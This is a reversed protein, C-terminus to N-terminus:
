ALQWWAYGFGDFRGLVKFEEMRAERPVQYLIYGDWANSRGMYFYGLDRATEEGGRNDRYFGYPVVRVTGSLDWYEEFEKIRNPPVYDPDPTLVQDHYQIYFHDQGMGYMRPDYSPDNGAMYMCPFIVLYKKGPPAAQWFYQGWSVSWYRYNPIFVARYITVQMVLDKLGSVDDRRWTFWESLNHGNTRYKWMDYPEVYVAPQQIIPTPTPAPTLTPTPTPAPTPHMMEKAMTVCGSTLVVMLVLVLLGIGIMIMEIRKILESNM